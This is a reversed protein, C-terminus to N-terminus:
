NPVEYCPYFGFYFYTMIIACPLVVGIIMWLTFPLVFGGQRESILALMMWAVPLVLMFLQAHRLFLALHSWHYIGFSSIQFVYPEGPYGYGRMRMALFSFGCIVCVFQALCLLTISRPM